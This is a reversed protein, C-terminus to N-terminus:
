RLPILTPGAISDAVLLYTAKTRPLLELPLAPHAELPQVRSPSQSSVISPDEADLLVVWESRPTGDALIQFAVTAARSRAPLPDLKIIEPPAIPSGDPGYTVHVLSLDRLAPDNALLFAAHVTDDPDVHLAPQSCPMVFGGPVIITEVPGPGTKETARL